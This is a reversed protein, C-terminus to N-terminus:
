GFGGAAKKLPAGVMSSTAAMWASVCHGPKLPPNFSDVNTTEDFVMLRSWLPCGFHSRISGHYGVCSHGDPDEGWIENNLLCLSIIM